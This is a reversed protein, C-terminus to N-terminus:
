VEDLRKKLEKQEIQKEILKNEIEIKNLEAQLAERRKNIDDAM